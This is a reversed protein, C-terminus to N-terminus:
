EPAPRFGTVLAYPSRDRQVREKAVPNRGAGSHRLPVYLATRLSGRGIEQHENGSIAPMLCTHVDMQCGKTVGGFFAVWWVCGFTVM